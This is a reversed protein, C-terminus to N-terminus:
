PSGLLGRVQGCATGAPLRRMVFTSQAPDPVTDAQRAFLRNSAGLTWREQRLLDVRGEVLDPSRVQGRLLLHSVGTIYVEFPKLVHLEVRVTAGVHGDEDWDFVAPDDAKKPLADPSQAHHYGVPVIGLDLDWRWASGDWQLRPHLQRLEMHAVYAPPIVTRAIRSTGQVEADCVQYSQHFGAEDRTVTSLAWAVMKSEVDKIVPARTVSAVALRLGWTGELAPEPHAEPGQAPAAAALLLLTLIPANV